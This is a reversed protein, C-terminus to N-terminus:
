EAKMRPGVGAESYRTASKKGDPDVKSTVLGYRPDLDAGPIPGSPGGGAPPAWDLGLSAAGAPPTYDVRIRVPTGATLTVPGSVLTDSVYVAATGTGTVSFTYSGTATPTVEGTFRASWTTTNVGPPLTAGWNVDLPGSPDGSGTAHVTMTPASPSLAPDDYYTAALGLIAGDYATTAHTAATSTFGSFASPPVTTTARATPPTTSRPRSSEIGTPDISSTLLSGKWTYATKDGAGTLTTMTPSVYTETHMPRPSSLTDPVPATLPTARGLADYGVQTFHTTSTGDTITGFAILDNNLVDRVGTLRGSNDYSYDTVPTTGAAGPDEIRALHGNSYYLNTPGRVCGHTSTGASGFLRRLCAVGPSGDVVRIFTFATQAASRLGKVSSFPGGPLRDAFRRRLAAGRGPAPCSPPDLPPLPEGTLPPGTGPAVPPDASAPATTTPRPRRGPLEPCCGGLDFMAMAILADPDRYGFAIRQLLRIRTNVSEVRANSLGHTLAAEIAGRHHRISRALEVFAPIRCRPM